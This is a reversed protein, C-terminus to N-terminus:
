ATLPPDPGSAPAVSPSAPRWTEISRTGRRRPRPRPRGTRPRRRLALFTRIKRVNAAMFLLAAFVSQAAVGHVRRRGPQHLAEHGPDKVYGNISEITNRLLNYTASWEASQFLLPQRFKAGPEPPIMVSQQTCSAPPSAKLQVTPLVRLRGRTKDSVSAPKLECRALLWQSAAPCQLRVHGEDDPLAKPRALYRWREKLQQHYRQHREHGQHATEKRRPKRFDRTADILAQPIMPCYYAGEILLFGQYSDQIGLQTVKYDYVPQYGLASVVLQFDDVVANSYARDGAVYGAPHGRSRLNALARAGNPGPAVSPKDLVAMAVTLNPFVSAAGPTDPGSVVISADYGWISKKM